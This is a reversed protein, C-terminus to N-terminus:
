VVGETGGGDGFIGGLQGALGILGEGIGTGMAQQNARRIQDNQIWGQAMTEGFQKQSNIYKDM